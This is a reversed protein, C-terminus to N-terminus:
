VEIAGADIDRSPEDGPEPTAGTDGNANEDTADVPQVADNAADSSAAGTSDSASDGCGVLCGLSAVSVLAVYTSLWRTVRRGRRAPIIQGQARTPVSSEGRRRGPGFVH